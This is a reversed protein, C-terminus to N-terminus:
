DALVGGIPRLLLAPLFTFLVVMGVSTAQGTLKFVYVGLAFATLGSGITSIFDGLWVILFLPPIKNNSMM